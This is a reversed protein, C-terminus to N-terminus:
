SRIKLQGSFSLFIVFLYGQADCGCTADAGEAEKASGMRSYARHQVPHLHSTMMDHNSLPRAQKHLTCSGCDGDDRSIPM